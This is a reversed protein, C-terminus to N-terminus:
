GKGIKINVPSSPLVDVTYTGNELKLHCGFNGIIQSVNAVIFKDNKNDNLIQTLRAVKKSDEDESFYDVIKAVRAILEDENRISYNEIFQKSSLAIGNSDRFKEIRTTLFKRVGSIETFNLTIASCKAKCLEYVPSDLSIGRQNRDAVSLTSKKLFLLNRDLLRLLPSHTTWSGDIVVYVSKDRASLRGVFRKGDKVLYDVDGLKTVKIKSEGRVHLPFDVFGSLVTDAELLPRHIGTEQDLPTLMKGYYSPAYGPLLLLSVAIVALHLPWKIKQMTCEIRWNREVSTPAARGAALHGGPHAIM